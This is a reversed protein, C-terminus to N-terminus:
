KQCTNIILDVTALASKLGLCWLCETGYERDQGLGGTQNIGVGCFVSDCWYLSWFEQVPVRRDLSKCGEVWGKNDQWGKMVKRLFQAKCNHLCEGPDEQWSGKKIEATNIYCECTSSANEVDRRMNKMDPM